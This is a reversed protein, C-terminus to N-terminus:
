VQFMKRARDDLADRSTVGLRNADDNLSASSALASPFRQEARWNSLSLWKADDPQPLRMEWGLGKTQRM